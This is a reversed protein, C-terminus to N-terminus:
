INVPINRDNPIYCSWINLSSSSNPLNVKAGVIDIKFNSFNNRIARDIFISRSKLSNHIIIAAGGYGDYRDSRYSSFNPITFSRTPLLWTESLLAISCKETFLLYQLSPFSAVLSRVNWQLINTPNATNICSLNISMIPSILEWDSNSCLSSCIFFIRNFISSCFSFISNIKIEKQALWEQCSRDTAVHPLKCHLCSPETAQVTPCDVISHKSGGCHSCRAESRCFKQTYGFRLCRNCQVPSQVSPNVEFLMNFVSISEPLKPSAFKLEVIRTITNIGDKNITIRRFSEIPFPSRVGERFDCESIDTDIKIVGYSYLMVAHYHYHYHSRIKYKDM